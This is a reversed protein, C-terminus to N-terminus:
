SREVRTFKVRLQGDITNSFTEFAKKLSTEIFHKGEKAHVRRIHSRVMHGKRSYGPVIETHDEIGREVISAYPAKYSLVSGNPIDEVSGSNKLTMTVVPCGVQSMEFGNRARDRLSEILAQVITSQAEERNM